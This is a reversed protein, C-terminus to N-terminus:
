REFVSRSSIRQPNGDVRDQSHQQSSRRPAEKFPRHVLELGANWIVLKCQSDILWINSDPSIKGRRILDSMLMELQPATIPLVQQENYCPILLSLKM